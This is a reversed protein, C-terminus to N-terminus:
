ALFEQIIKWVHLHNFDLGSDSGSALFAALDSKISASLPQEISVLQQPCRALRRGGAKSCASLAMATRTTLERTDRTWFATFSSAYGYVNRVRDLCSSSHEAIDYCGM